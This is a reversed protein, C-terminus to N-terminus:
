PLKLGWAKALAQGFAADYLCNETYSVTLVAKELRAQSKKDLSVNYKQMVDHMREVLCCTFPGKHLDAMVEPGVAREARKRRKRDMKSYPYTFIWNLSGWAAANKGREKKDTDKKM